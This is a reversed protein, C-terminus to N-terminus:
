GDFSEVNKIKELHGSIDIGMVLYAVILPSITILM